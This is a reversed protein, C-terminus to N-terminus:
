LLLHIDNYLLSSLLRDYRGVMYWLAPNLLSEGSNFIVIINLYM